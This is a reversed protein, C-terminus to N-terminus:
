TQGQQGKNKTNENSEKMKDKVAICNVDWERGAEMKKDQEEDDQDQPSFDASETRNNTRRRRGSEGDIRVRGM